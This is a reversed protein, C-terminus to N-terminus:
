KGRHHLKQRRNETNKIKEAYQVKLEAYSKKSRYVQRLWGLMITTFFNFAKGKTADYRDMKLFCVCILERITDKKSKFVEEIVKNGKLFYKVINTALTEFAAFVDKMSDVNPNNKFECIIKELSISKLM